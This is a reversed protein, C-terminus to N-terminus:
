VHGAGLRDRESRIRRGGGCGPLEDPGHGAGSAGRPRHLRRCNPTRASESRASRRRAAVRDAGSNGLMVIREFGEEERLFRIGAALDLLLNEHLMAGDNNLYRTNFGFAAFGAEVWYPISYHMSFDVRPHAMIVCTRPKGRPPMWLTGRSKGFDSAYLQVARHSAHPDIDGFDVPYRLQYDAPAKPM